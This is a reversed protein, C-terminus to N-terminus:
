DLRFDEFWSVRIQRGDPTFGVLHLRPLPWAPYNQAADLEPAEVIGGTGALREGPNQASWTKLIQQADLLMALGVHSRRLDPDVATRLMALRARVQPLIGVDATIVGVIRGGRYAVIVLEEAREEPTVNRPLIALRKWFGIADAIIQPDGLRWAPRFEVDPPIVLPVTPATLEPLNEDFRFHEFWSVRAQLGEKTYGVVGYRLNPWYPERARDFLNPGEIIAGLGALREGPHDLSWSELLERTYLGLAMSVRSRRHEPDVAARITALRARVLELRELTATHVGVVLGDKYAVATLERARAEPAVGPPLIDLRRWFAIADAEIDPDDRRWAPRLDYGPVWAKWIPAAVGRGNSASASARGAPCGM